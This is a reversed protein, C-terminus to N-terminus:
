SGPSPGGHSGPRQAGAVMDGGQGGGAQFQLLRRVKSLEPNRVRGQQSRLEPM